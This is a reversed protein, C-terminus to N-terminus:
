RVTADLAALARARIKQNPHERLRATAEASLESPKVRGEELGRLLVPVWEMKGVLADSSLSQLEKTLGDWRRVLREVDETKGIARFAEFAPVRLSGALANTSLVAELLASRAFDSPIVETFRIAKLRETESVKSDNIKGIIANQAAPNGCFADVQRAAGALEENPNAALRKLLRKVGPYGTWVKSSKQGRMMGMLGSACFAPSQDAVQHLFELGRDVARADRSEFLQQVARHLLDGSLSMGADGVRGLAQFAGAEDLAAVADFAGAATFRIVEDAEGASALVLYELATELTTVTRARNADPTPSASMGLAIRRIAIAVERRVRADADKAGPLLQSVLDLQPSSVSAEGVMRVGWSRLVADSSALARAVAERYNSNSSALVWFAELRATTSPGETMMQLLAQRGDPALERVFRRRAWTRLWPHSSTLLGVWDPPRLRALAALSTDASPSAGGVRVIASGRRIWLAGDPGMTWRDAPTLATASLINPTSAERPTARFGAGDPRSRFSVPVSSNTLWLLGPVGAAGNSLGELMAVAFGGYRRLGAESVASLRAVRSQVPRPYTNAPLFNGGSVLYFLSERSRTAVWLNGEEDFALGVALQPGDSVVELRRSVPHFRLVGCGARGPATVGTGKAELAAVGSGNQLFYVWGDPGSAFSELRGGQASGLFGTVLPQQLDARDDRNTDTLLWLGSTTGLLIGQETWEFGTAEPLGDAFTKLAYSVTSGPTEEVISLRAQRGGAGRVSELLWLRPRSDWTMAVPDSNLPPLVIASSSASAGFCPFQPLGSLALVLSGIWMWVTTTRPQQDSPRNM